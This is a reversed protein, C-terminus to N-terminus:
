RTVGVVFMLEHRSEPASGATSGPTRYPWSVRVTLALAGTAPDFRLAGDSFRWCEVLFYQEAEPMPGAGSGPNDRPQLRVGDRSAVFALGDAPSPGLLPTQAALVEVGPTAWRKLEVRLAEPLRQATLRDATEAGRNALGPLLALIVAVAGAFVAVAVIVEILSFARLPGTPRM